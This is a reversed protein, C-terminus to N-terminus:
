LASGMEVTSEHLPPSSPSYSPMKNRMLKRERERERELLLAFHPLLALKSGEGGDRGWAAWAWLFDSLEECCATLLISPFSLSLM